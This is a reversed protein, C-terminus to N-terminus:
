SIMEFGMTSLSRYCLTGILFALYISLVVMLALMSLGFLLNTQEKKTQESNQM